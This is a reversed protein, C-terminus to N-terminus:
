TNTGSRNDTLVVAVLVIAVVVLVLALLVTGIIGLVRGATAMGRGGVQGQSADIERITRHSISWAFPSVLIPLYCIFGGAVAVIGLVLSTTARPHDPPPLHPPRYGYGPGPPPYYGPPPQQEYPPEGEPNSYSM